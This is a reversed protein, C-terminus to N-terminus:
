TRGKESHGYIGHDRIYDFVPEPVLYRISRGERVAHRIQSASIDLQRLCATLVRGAPDSLLDETKSVQRSQFLERLEIEMEGSFDTGPRELLLLHALDPISQWRYWGTLDLFADMGMVLILSRATGIEQRISALTEVMYSQGGRAYERDDIELLSENATALKLMQLRQSPSCDPQARHVPINSPILFVRNVGLYEAVEVASRLHGNHVPDFTGGLVVVPQQM